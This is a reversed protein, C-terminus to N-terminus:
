EFGFIDDFMINARVCSLCIDRFIFSITCLARFSPVSLVLLMWFHSSTPFSPVSPMSPVSTASPVSPVPTASP